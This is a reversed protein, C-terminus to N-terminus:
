LKKKTWRLKLMRIIFVPNGIIYRGFLRSPEEIFRVLWEFGIDRIWRPVNYRKGALVDLCGGVTLIAHAHLREFNDMLWKEQLPMGLGVLLIDPSTKNITNIINELERGQHEFYGHKYGAIIIGPFSQVINSSASEAVAEDGGLLFISYKNKACVYLLDNMWDTLPLHKPIIQRTIWCGLRIGQGDAYVVKSRNFYEKLWQHKYTLNIGHANIYSFISKEKINIAKCIESIIEGKTILDIRVKNLFVSDNKM